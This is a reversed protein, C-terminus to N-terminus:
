FLEPYDSRLADEVDDIQVDELYLGALYARNAKNAVTLVHQGGLVFYGLNTNGVGSSSDEAGTPSVVRVTAVCPDGLVNEVKSIVVVDAPLGGTAATPVSNSFYNRANNSAFDIIRGTNGNITAGAVCISPNLPNGAWFAVFTSPASGPRTAYIQDRTANAFELAPRVYSVSDLNPEAVTIGLDWDSDGGHEPLGVGAVYDEPLWLKVDGLDALTKSGSGIVSTRRGRWPKRRHIIM